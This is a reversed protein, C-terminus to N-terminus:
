NFRGRRSKSNRGNGRGGGARGFKESKKRHRPLEGPPSTVSYDGPFRRFYSFDRRQTGRVLEDLSPSSSLAGPKPCPPNSLLNQYHVMENPEYQSNAASEYLYDYSRPALGFARLEEPTLCPDPNGGNVSHELPPHVTIPDGYSVGRQAWIEELTWNGVTLVPKLQFSGEEDKVGQTPATKKVQTHSSLSSSKDVPATNGSNPPREQKRPDSKLPQNIQADSDLTTYVRQYVEEVDTLSFDNSIEQLKVGHAGIQIPHLPLKAKKDPNSSSGSSSSRADGGRSRRHGGNM